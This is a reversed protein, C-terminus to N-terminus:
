APEPADDYPYTRKLCWAEFDIVNEPLSQQDFAEDEKLYRALKDPVPIGVAGCLEALQRTMKVADERIDDLIEADSRYAKRPRRASKPKNLTSVLPLKRAREDCRRIIGDLVSEDHDITKM